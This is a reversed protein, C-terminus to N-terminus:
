CRGRNFRRMWRRLAADPHNNVIAQLTAPREDQGLKFRGAIHRVQARFAIIRREMDAFRDGLEDICWPDPRGAEMATTLAKLAEEGAAPEFHVTADIRLQAFNWTPAWNRDPVLEPSIYAQPGQFLILASRTKSLQGYLPNYRAMHGLLSVVQGDGDCEALLPLLSAHHPDGDRAIVWALPYERILDTIDDPGYKEFLATM